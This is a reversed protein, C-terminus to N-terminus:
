LLPPLYKYLANVRMIKAIGQLNTPTLRKNNDQLSKSLRNNHDIDNYHSQRLKFVDKIRFVM